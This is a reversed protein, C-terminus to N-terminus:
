RDAKKGGGFDTKLKELVGGTPDKSTSGSSSSLFRSMGTKPTAAAQDDRPTAPSAGSLASSSSSPSQSFYGTGSSTVGNATTFGAPPTIYVIIYQPTLDDEQEKNKTNSGGDEESAPRSSAQIGSTTSKPIANLSPVDKLDNLWSRIDNRIRTRYTDSDATSVLFLHAFPRELLNTQLLHRTEPKHKAKLLEDSLPILKLPLSQITRIANATANPVRHHVNRIPFQSTLCAVFHSCLHSDVFNQTSTYSLNVAAAASTTYSPDSGSSSSAM